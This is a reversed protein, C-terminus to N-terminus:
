MSIGLVALAAVIAQYAGQASALTQVSTALGVLFGKLKTVNPKDNVLERRADEVVEKVEPKEVGSSGLYDEVARLAHGVIEREEAGFHQVVNASAGDGTQIAGVPGHINMTVARSEPQRTAAERYSSVFLAVEGTQLDIARQLAKDIETQVIVTLESDFHRKYENVEGHIADRAEQAHIKIEGMIEGELNEDPRSVMQQIVRLVTARVMSIRIKLENSALQALGSVYAGSGLLGKASCMRTHANLEHRFTDNREALRPHVLKRTIEVWTPM